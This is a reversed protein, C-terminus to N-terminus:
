MSALPTKQVSSLYLQILSSPPSPFLFWCFGECVRSCFFSTAELPFLPPSYFNERFTDGGFELLWAKTGFLEEKVCRSASLWRLRGGRKM